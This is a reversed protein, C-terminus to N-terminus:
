DEKPKIFQEEYSQLFDQLCASAHCCDDRLWALNEDEQTLSNLYDYMNELTNVAIDLADRESREMIIVKTAKM